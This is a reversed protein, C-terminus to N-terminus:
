SGGTGSWVWGNTFEHTLAGYAWAALAVNQSTASGAIRIDVGAGRTLTAGGGANIRFGIVTGVPMAVTAVPQITWTRLSADSTPQSIIHAIDTLAMARSSSVYTVPMGIYGVNDDFRTVGFFVRLDTAVGGNDNVPTYGINTVAAGSAMMSSTISAAAVSFPAIAPDLDEITSGGATKLIVRYTKTPDPYIAPFLGGSDAVVPNSLPTGLGASTYVAQPTLTGTQYFFLQAGSMSLGAADIARFILTPLLFGSM